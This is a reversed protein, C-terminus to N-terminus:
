TDDRGFHGGIIKVRPMSRVKIFLLIVFVIALGTLLKILQLWWPTKGGKAQPTMDTTAKVEKILPELTPARAQTTSSVAKTTTSSKKTVTKAATAVTPSKQKEKIIIIDEQVRPLIRWTNRYLNVVGIIRFIDGRHMSPKTIETQAQIYVKVKGSGDDVYFTNGSTEVVEGEIQVLKNEYSKFSKTKIKIPVKNIVPIEDDGGVNEPPSEIINERGFTQKISWQWINKDSRAWVFDQKADSYISVEQLLNGDPQYLRLGDSDNNLTITTQNRSLVLYDKPLIITNLITYKKIAGKADEIMWGDLDVSSDSNNFLEIREYVGDDGSPDPLLENIYIESSYTIKPRLHFSYVDSSTEDKGDFAVVQWYYNTCETTLELEYNNELQGDVIINEATFDSNCGLYLSYSIEDQELDDSKQWSFNINKSILGTEDEPLILEPATPPNNPLSDPNKEGPTPIQVVFDESDIDSDLGNPVRAISKGKPAVPANGSLNGYIVKDIETSDQKLKIVDGDNNLSFGFQCEGSGKEIVLYAGAKITCTELSKPKETGDELTFGTLDIDSTSTNYLEIWEPKGTPADSLIENILLPAVDKAHVKPTWLFILFIGLFLFALCNKVM